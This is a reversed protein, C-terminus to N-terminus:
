TSTSLDHQRTGRLKYCTWLLKMMVQSMVSSIINVGHEPIPGISYPHCSILWFCYINDSSSCGKEQSQNKLPRGNIQLWLADRHIDLCGLNGIIKSALQDRERERMINLSFRGKSPSRTRRNAKKWSAQIALPCLWFQLEEEQPFRRLM